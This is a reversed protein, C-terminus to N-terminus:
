DEVRDAGHPLAWRTLREVLDALYDRLEAPSVEGPIQADDGITVQSLVWALQGPTM